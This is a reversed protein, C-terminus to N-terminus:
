FCGCSGDIYIIELNGTFDRSLNLQTEFVRHEQIEKGVKMVRWRLLVVV